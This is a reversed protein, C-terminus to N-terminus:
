RKIGKKKFLGLLNFHHKTKNWGLEERRAEDLESKTVVKIQGGSRQAFDRALPLLSLAEPFSDDIIISEIMEGDIMGPVKAETECWIGRMSFRQHLVSVQLPYDFGHKKVKKTIMKKFEPLGKAHEIKTKPGIDDIFEVDPANFYIIDPRNNLEKKYKLFIRIIGIHNQHRTFPPSKSFYTSVYKRTDPFNDSGVAGVLCVGRQNVDQYPIQDRSYVTGMAVNFLYSIKDHDAYLIGHYLSKQDLIDSVEQFITTKGDPCSIIKYDSM